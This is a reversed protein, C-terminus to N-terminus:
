SGHAHSITLPKLFYSNRFLGTLNRSRMAMRADFSSLLAALMTLRENGYTGRGFSRSNCRRVLLIKPDTSIM